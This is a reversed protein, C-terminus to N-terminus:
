IELGVESAIRDAMREFAFWALWNKLDSEDIPLSEGTEDKYDNRMEEIEDYFKDYFAHTDAYYVLSGIMGSQCGHENLDRFFTKIEDDTKYHDLIYDSVDKKLNNNTEHWLEGLKNQLEM